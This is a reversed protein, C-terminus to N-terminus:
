QALYGQIWVAYDFVDVKMDTSIYDTVPFNFNADMANGNKDKRLNTGITTQKIKESDDVAWITTIEAHSYSAGLTITIHFLSFFTLLKTIIKQTKM